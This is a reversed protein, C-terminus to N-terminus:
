PPSVPAAAEPAAEPVRQLAVVVCVLAGLILLAAGEGLTDALVGVPVGILGFAGFALMSLSMVRGVYRPETNRILVAGNLTTFAGSTVGIAFLLVVALEMSRAFFLLSVCLGFAAASIRYVDIAHRSDSFPAAVLSALLGGIASVSFLVSVQTSPLGLQHEVLGPLVTVYPFGLMVTLVFLLLLARLRPNDRVYALGDRMDFLLGRDGIRSPPTPAPLFIQTLVAIAYLAGMTAFAVTAGNPLGLLLGALAPGVVRSVNGAVSNLAVANGRHEADVVDVIYATRTPGLVAFTLGVLFGGTALHVIQMNGQAMLWSLGLFVVVTISQMGVLLTRKNLRDALAGGVPALLLQGLGRGFVVMGVATNEATLEFAVVAQVVNSTFFGVFASLSGFWLLRFDRNRLAEFM